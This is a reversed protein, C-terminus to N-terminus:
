SLMATTVDGRLLPQRKYVDLHTYSVPDGIVLQLTNGGQRALDFPHQDPHSQALILVALSVLQRKYVDQRIMKGNVNEDLEPNIASAQRPAAAPKQPKAPKNQQQRKYM